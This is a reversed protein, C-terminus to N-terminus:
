HYIEGLLPIIRIINKQITSFVQRYIKLPCNIPDKISSNRREQNPWAGLLFNKHDLGPFFIHLFETHIKEMSLILDASELEPLILKRSKHSSIDIGHERCVEISLSSAEQNDLGHIGMSSVALANPNQAPWEHRMIGEAVPSRCINATCVFVIRIM